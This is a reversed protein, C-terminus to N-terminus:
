ILRAVASSRAFVVVLLPSVIAISSYSILLILGNFGFSELIFFVVLGISALLLNSFSILTISGLLQAMQFRPISMVNFSQGLAIVVLSPLASSAGVLMEMKGYYMIVMVIVAATFCIISLLFGLIIARRYTNVNFVIKRKSRDYHNVLNFTLSGTLSTFAGAVQSAITLLPLIEIGIFKALWLRMIGNYITNSAGGIWLSVYNLRMLKWSTRMGKPSVIKIIPFNIAIKISGTLLILIAIISFIIEGQRSFQIVALFAGGIALKGYVSFLLSRRQQGNMRLYVHATEDLIQGAFMLGGSSILLKGRNLGSVLSELFGLDAYLLIVTFLVIIIIQIKLSALIVTEPDIGLAFVTPVLVPSGLSLFSYLAVYTLGLAYLTFNSPGLVFPLLM